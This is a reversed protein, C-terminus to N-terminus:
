RGSSTNASAAAFLLPHRTKLIMTLALLKMDTIEAREAMAWLAALPMEVVTINEHEGKVGGGASVRDQEGYRALYLDMRETSIGPLSWVCGVHELNDVRLGTEEELERRATDAPDTEEVRGAPAELLDPLGAALLVPARLQRILLITRREPDYPLIAVARGHDEVERRIEEGSELRLRVTILKTWGTHVTATEIIEPPMLADALPASRVARTKV